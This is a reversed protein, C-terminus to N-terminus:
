EHGDRYRDREDKGDPVDARRRAAETAPQRSCSVLTEGRSTVRTWSLGRVDSQPSGASEGSLGPLTHIVCGGLQLVAVTSTDAEMTLILDPTRDEALARVGDARSAGQDAERATETTAPRRRSRRTTPRECWGQVPLAPVRDPIGDTRTRRPRVHQADVAGALHPQRARCGGESRELVSTQPSLRLSVPTVGRRDV